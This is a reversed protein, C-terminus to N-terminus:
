WATSDLQDEINNWMGGTQDGLVGITGLITALIMGLMVAYEVATAAEEQRLFKLIADSFM